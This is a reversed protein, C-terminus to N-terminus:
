EEDYDTVFSVYKPSSTCSPAGFTGSASLLTNNASSCESWTIDSSPVGIGAIEFSTPDQSPCQSGTQCSQFTASLTSATDDASVPDSPPSPPTEMKEVKLINFRDNPQDCFARSESREQDSLMLDHDKTATAKELLESQIVLDALVDFEEDELSSQFQKSDLSFFSSASTISNQHRVPPKKSSPLAMALVQTAKGPIKFSEALRVGSNRDKQAQVFPNGKSFTNSKVLVKRRWAIFIVAGGLLIAALVM